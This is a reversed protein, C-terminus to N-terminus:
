RPKRIFRCKNHYYSSRRKKFNPKLSTFDLAEMTCDSSMDKPYFYLVVWKGIFNNLALNKGSSDPLNLVPANDGVKVM